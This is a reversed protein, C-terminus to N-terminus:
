PRVVIKFMLCVSFITSSSHSDPSVLKPMHRMSRHGRSRVRQPPIPSHPHILGLMQTVGYSATLQGYSPIAPYFSVSDTTEVISAWGWRGVGDLFLGFLMAQLFLSVRNPLSLVPIGVLAYIYHHLRLHHNDGLNALVILIPVLPLYRSILKAELWSTPFM